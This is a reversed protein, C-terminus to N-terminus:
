FAEMIFCQVVCMFRLNKSSTTYQRLWYLLIYLKFSRRNVSFCVGCSLMTVVSYIYISYKLIFTYHNHTIVSPMINIIFCTICYLIEYSSRTSFMETFVKPADLTVSRLVHFVGVSGERLHHVYQEM